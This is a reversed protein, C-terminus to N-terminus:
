LPKLNKVINDLKEKYVDLNAKILEIEKRQAKKDTITILFVCKHNDYVIFLIRKGNFKKERFFVYGLPKGTYPDTKLRQEFTSVIEQESKDLKELKKSYWDSRFVRFM